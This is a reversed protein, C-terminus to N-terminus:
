VHAQCRVSDDDLRDRRGWVFLAPVELAGLRTWFGQEGAPEDLVIQRAAAYFASRGAPTLYSRLFEDMGAATWGTEAGPVMRELVGTVVRRPALPVHRDASPPTPTPSIHDHPTTHTVVLFIPLSDRRFGLGGIPGVDEGAPPHAPYAKTPDFAPV